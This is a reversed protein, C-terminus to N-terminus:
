TTSATLKYFFLYGNTKADELARNAPSHSAVHSDNYEFWSGDSQPAYCYYHGSKPTSGQHVVVSALEYKATQGNQLRVTINQDPNVHNTLKTFSNNEVDYRRLQIPLISPAAIFSMEQILHNISQEQEEKAISLIAMTGLDKVERKVEPNYSYFEFPILNLAEMLHTAAENADEQSFAGARLGCEQRLFDRFTNIEDATVTTHKLKEHLNNLRQRAGPVEEQASLSPQLNIFRLAQVVANIYCSNGGNVIGKGASAPAQPNEVVQPQSTQLFQARKHSLVEQILSLQNVIAYDRTIPLSMSLANVKASIATLEAIDEAYYSRELLAILGDTPDTMALAIRREYLLKTHAHLDGTGDLLRRMELLDLEDFTCAQEVDNSFSTKLETRLIRDAIKSVALKLSEHALPVAFAKNNHRQVKQFLKVKALDLTHPNLNASDLTNISHVIASLSFRGIGFISLFKFFRDAFSLEDEKVAVLTRGELKLLVKPQEGTTVPQYAFAKLANLTTQEM